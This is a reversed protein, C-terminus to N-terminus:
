IPTEVVVPPFKEALYEGLQRAIQSDLPAPLYLPRLRARSLVPRGIVPLLWYGDKAIEFGRFDAWLHRDTLLGRNVLVFDQTVRYQRPWFYPLVAIVLILGLVVAAFPPLSVLLVIVTATLVLLALGARGWALPGDEKLLWRQWHLSIVITSPPEIM